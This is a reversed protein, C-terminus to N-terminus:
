QTLSLESQMQWLYNVRQFLKANLSIDSSFKAFKPSFEIELKRRAENSCSGLLNFFVGVVDNLQEEAKEMAEITNEFTPPLGSEAIRDIEELTNELTHDLAESFHDDEIRDFPPLKFPTNWKQLLPNSTM